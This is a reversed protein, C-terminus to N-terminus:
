PTAAAPASVSSSADNVSEAPDTLQTAPAVKELPTLVVPETRPLSQEPAQVPKASSRKPPLTKAQQPAAAAKATKTELKDLLANLSADRHIRSRAQKLHPGAESKRGKDILLEALALHPFPDEPAIQIVHELFQTTLARHRLGWYAQTLNLLAIPNHPALATARKFANVSVEIGGLKEQQVGLNNWLAAIYIKDRATQPKDNLARLTSEVHKYEGRDLDDRIQQYAASPAEGFEILRTRPIDIPPTPEILAPPFNPTADINTSPLTAPTPVTTPSPQTWLRYFVFIGLLVAMIRLTSSIDRRYM